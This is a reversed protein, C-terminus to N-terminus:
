PSPIVAQRVEEIKEEIRVLDTLLLDTRERILSETSNDIPGVYEDIDVTVDRLWWPVYIRLTYTSSYDPIRVLKYENLPIFIREVEIEYLGGAASVALDYAKKWWSKASESTGKARLIRSEAQIGFTVVIPDYVRPGLTENAEFTEYWIQRWNSEVSLELIPESM